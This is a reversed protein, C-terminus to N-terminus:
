THMSFRRSSSVTRRRRQQQLQQQQWMGFIALCFLLCLLLFVSMCRIYDILYAYRMQTIQIASCFCIMRWACLCRTAPLTVSCCRQLQLKIHSCGRRAQDAQDDDQGAADDDHYIGGSLHTDCDPVSLASVCTQMFCTTATAKCVVSRRFSRAALTALCRSVPCPCMYCEFHECGSSSLVAHSQMAHDSKLKLGTEPMM